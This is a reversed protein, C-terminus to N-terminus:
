SKHNLFQAIRQRSFGTAEAIDKQTAGAISAAKVVGILEDRLYDRLEDADRLQKSAKKSVELWSRTLPTKRKAM